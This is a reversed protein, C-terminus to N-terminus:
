AVGPAQTFKLLSRPDPTGTPQHEPLHPLARPIRLRVVSGAGTRSTIDLQAGIRAARARMNALGLGPSPRSTDFGRGDDEIRLETEGDALARASLRIHAAGSHKLANAVAELVIRQLAFVSSPELFDIRPLEAVDWELHIGAPEPLPELRYRLNGLVAGLNGEAPELADIAIRLEQLAEKVRQQIQAGGRQTEVYRLLGVLSAGLGDHMDSIIRQRERALAQLRLMEAKEAHYAEIERAKEAVRRELEINSQGMRWIAAVHREFIVAGIAIIMVPVHYHRIVTSDVDVWGLYRAVEHLMLVAMLVIALLQLLNAARLPQRASILITAVGWVLLAANITQFGLRLLAVHPGSYWWPYTVEILLVGWIWAEFRPFRLGVTRLCLIVTPVVLGYHLYSNLMANVVPMDAWRLAFRLVGVFGWSLCTISYWRMVQDERRAIWLLFAIFGATLAMVMFAREALNGLENNVVLTRRVERADGFTMRGLGHMDFPDSYANMRLHLVNEGGRLMHPPINFYIPIGFGPGTGAIFDHSRGLYTGNVYVVFGRSRMHALTVAQSRNPADALQFKVRYWGPGESNPHTRRWEHPLPVPQWAAADEPPLKRDSLIFHAHKLVTKKSPQAAHLPAELGTLLSSVLLISFAGVIRSVRKSM